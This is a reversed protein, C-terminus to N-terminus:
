RASHVWDEESLGSPAALRASPSGQVSTRGVLFCPTTVSTNHGDVLFANLIMALFPMMDWLEEVPMPSPVVGGAHPGVRAAVASARM